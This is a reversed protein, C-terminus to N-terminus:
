LVPVRLCCDILGWSGPLNNASPQLRSLKIRIVDGAQWGLNAVTESWSVRDLVKQTSNCAVDGSVKGAYTSDWAANARATSASFKLQIARGGAATTAYGLVEITVVGTASLNFPLRLQRIVACETTADFLHRKITGNVGTDTDL